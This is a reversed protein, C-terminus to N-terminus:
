VGFLAWWVLLPVLPLSLYVMYTSKKVDEQNVGWSQTLLKPKLLVLLDFIVVSVIVLWLFTVGSDYWVFIRGLTFNVGLVALAILVTINVSKM